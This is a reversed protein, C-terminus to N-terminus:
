GGQRLHLTAATHRLDHFRIYPLGADAILPMSDRRAFNPRTLHTGVTSSFVLEPDGWAPGLARREEAQRERHRRLAERAVAPLRITRRGRETKPQGMYRVSGVETLADVVEIHGTRLNVHPWRLGFLEGERMGTTLALVILAELRHGRAAAMLRDAQEKDYVQMKRKAMRPPKVRDAVNRPVLDMLMADELAAHLVRHMQNVTSSSRGTALKDAYFRMLHQPSLKTLPIHGLHPVLHVRVNVEYKYWTSPELSRKSGLWDALYHGVTVREPSPAIGRQLDRLVEIRRANAEQRTKGYLSKRTGDGLSVMAEWRGDKRKRITGEGNGAKGSKGM